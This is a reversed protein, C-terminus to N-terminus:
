RARRSSVLVFALFPVAIVAATFVAGVPVPLGAAVSQIAALAPFIFAPGIFLTTVIAVSHGLGGRGVVRAAVQDGDDNLRQSM